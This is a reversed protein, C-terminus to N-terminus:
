YDWAVIPLTRSGLDGRAREGRDLSIVVGLRDWMKGAKNVSWPEGYGVDNRGVHRKKKKKGLAM